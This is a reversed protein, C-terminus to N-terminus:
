SKGKERAEFDDAADRLSQLRAPSLFKEIKEFFLRYKADDKEFEASPPWFVGAQIRRIIREACEVAGAIQQEGLPWELVATKEVEKPLVIYAARLSPATPYRARIAVAYLPLQLDKWSQNEGFQACSNRTKGGLHAKQPSEGSGSTKYDMICVRQDKENVDVRDVRGRLMVGGCQMEVNYEVQDIRWGVERWKAQAEAVPPLYRRMIEYQIQLPLGRDHGSGFRQNFYRDLQGELCKQIKEADATDRADSEAFRRFIEHMATGFDLPNLEHAYAFPDKLGAVYKLYYEFPSSLYTKLRSPSITEMAAVSALAPSSIMWGPDREVSQFVSPPDSFFYRARRALDDTCAAVGLLFRSPRLPDGQPSRRPMFGRVQNASRSQVITELTHADRAYRRRNDRLGARTRVRDPLFADVTLADPILGDNLDTLLVAPADEWALELWGLLEVDGDRRVTELTESALGRCLLDDTEIDTGECIKEVKAHATLVNCLLGAEESLARDSVRAAYVDELVKLVSTSRPENELVSIWEKVRGMAGQLITKERMTGDDSQHAGYLPASSQAAEYSAPMQQNQFKDTIPLLLNEADLEGELRQLVAPHRFIGMLAEASKERRLRLLRQVLSFLALRNSPTGSPNFVPIGDRELVLALRSTTQADGAGVVMGSRAAPGAEQLIKRIHENASAGDGCVEVQEPLLSLARGAWAESDPRGWEDFAAAELEPAHVCIDVPVTKSLLRLACLALEPPDPAFLVVVRTVGPPLMPDRAVAQKAEVDDRWGAARVTELYKKELGALCQWRELEVPEDLAAYKESFSQLTHNEECLSDRLSALQDALAAQTASLRWDNGIRLPGAEDKPVSRLTRRWFAEAAAGAALPQSSPRPRFLAPPMEVPSILLARGDKAAAVALRERLRRGAHKTPVLVLTDRLDVAGDARRAQRLLFDAAHELAPTKWDM